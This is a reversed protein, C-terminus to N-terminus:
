KRVNGVNLTARSRRRVTTKESSGGPSKAFACRSRRVSSLWFAELAVERGLGEGFGTELGVGVGIAEGVGTTVGFTGTVV